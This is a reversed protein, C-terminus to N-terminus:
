ASPAVGEGSLVRVSARGQGIAVRDMQEVLTLAGLGLLIERGSALWGAVEPDEAGLTVAAQLGLLAEDWTLGLARYAAVGARYGALAAARDGDLAAIGAGVTARDADTARGRTGISDLRDLAAAAGATDGALVAAVAIRPLVYPANYDSIDVSPLWAAAADAWHGRSFARLAVLDYVSSGVDRDELAGLRQTMRGLTEEDLTGRLGALAAVAADVVVSDAEELDLGQARELQQEVWDWEGTRRADEAVNGLVTIEMGRQGLRRAFDLAEKQRAVADRPDDLATISAVTMAARMALEPLEAQEALESAAVSLARGEWLRGQFFAAMGNTLLCRAAADILGTREARALAVRSLETAREYNGQLQHVRAGAVLV